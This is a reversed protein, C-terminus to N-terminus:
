RQHVVLCGPYFVPSRITTTSNLRSKKQQAYGLVRWSFLNQTTTIRLDPDVWWYGILGPHVTYSDRIALSSQGNVILRLSGNSIQERWCGDPTVNFVSALRPNIMQKSITSTWYREQKKQQFRRFLM